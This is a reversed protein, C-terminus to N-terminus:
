MSSRWRGRRVCMNRQHELTTTQPYATILSLSLTIIHDHRAADTCAGLAKRLRVALSGRRVLSQSNHLALMPRLHRHRTRWSSRMVQVSSTGTGLDSPMAPFRGPRLSSGTGLRVPGQRCRSSWEVHCSRSRRHHGDHSSTRSVFVSSANVQAGICCRGSRSPTGMGTLRRTQQQATKPVRDSHCCCAGRGARM